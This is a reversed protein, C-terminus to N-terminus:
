KFDNPFNTDINNNENVQASTSKCKFPLYFWWFRGRGEKKGSLMNLLVVFNSITQFHSKPLFIINIEKLWSQLCRRIFYSGVLWGVMLLM